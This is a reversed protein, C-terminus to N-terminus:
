GGGTLSLRPGDESEEMALEFQVLVDALDANVVLVTREEHSFTRDAEDKTDLQFTLSEGDVALRLAVDDPTESNNLLEALHAAAAETVRFM